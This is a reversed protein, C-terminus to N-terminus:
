DYRPRHSQSTVALRVPDLTRAWLVSDDARAHAAGSAAETGGPLLVATVDDAKVRLRVSVGDPQEAQATSAQRVAEFPDQWLRADVKGPQRVLKSHITPREGELPLHVATAGVVLLLTIIVGIWNNPLSGTSPAEGVM